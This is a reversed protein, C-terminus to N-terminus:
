FVGYFLALAAGIAHMTSAGASEPDIFNAFPVTVASFQIMTDSTMSRTTKGFSTTISHDVYDFDFDDTSDITNAPTTTAVSTKWNRSVTGRVRVCAVATDSM